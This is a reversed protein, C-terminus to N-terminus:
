ILVQLGNILQRVIIKISQLEDSFSRFVYLTRCGEQFGRYQTYTYHICESCAYVVSLANISM